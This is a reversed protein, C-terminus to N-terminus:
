AEEDDGGSEEKKVEEDKKATEGKKAKKARPTKPTAPSEQTGEDTAKRKTGRGAAKKPTSPVDANGDGNPEVTTAAGTHEDAAAKMKAWVHM